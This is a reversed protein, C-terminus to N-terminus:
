FLRDLCVVVLFVASVFANSQFFARNIGAVDLSRASRHEYVLAVAVVPMALFYIPGLNAAFGFGILMTLMLVHLLQAVRLTRAIGMTVVLSRIGERRDFEFDQTAYILDFGAVWCIVGIALVIPALDLEGRQAIWAGIPSIALALGLFFHTAATFRKTLSYFFVIALAIPSLVFTLRNIAAAAALFLASSLVLLAGIAPKSLLLHRSATRPNRQDLSWDVFRNFLMAATRASVMCVLVLLLTRASPLGNAAVVLAGLAFPLAFITHSFRILRLFRSLANGSPAEIQRHRDQSPMLSDFIPM